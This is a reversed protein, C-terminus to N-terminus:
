SCRGTQTKNGISDYPTLENNLHSSSVGVARMIARHVCSILTTSVETGKVMNMVISKAIAHRMFRPAIMNNVGIKMNGPTATITVPITSPFQYKFACIDILRSILYTM